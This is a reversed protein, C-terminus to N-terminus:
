DPSEALKQLQDPDVEQLWGASFTKAILLRAASVSPVSASHGVRSGSLLVVLNQLKEKKKLHPPLSNFM